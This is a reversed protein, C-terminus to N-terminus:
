PNPWELSRRIEVTGHVLFHAAVVPEPIRALCRDLLREDSVDFEGKAILPDVKLHKVGHELVQGLSLQQARARTMLPHSANM